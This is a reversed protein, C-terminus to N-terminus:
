KLKLKSQQHQMFHFIKRLPSTDITDIKELAFALAEISSLGNNVTTSRIYYQSPQPPKLTLKPLKQLWENLALIKKAKRWTGDILILTKKQGSSLASISSVKRELTRREDHVEPFVLCGSQPLSEIVQRCETFDIASEGVYIEVTPIVLKILRVTGKAHGVESPHQLIIVRHPVQMLKIADCVCTVM